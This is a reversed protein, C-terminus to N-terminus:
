TSIVALLMTGITCAVSKFHLNNFPFLPMCPAYTRNYMWYVFVSQSVSLQSRIDADCAPLHHAPLCAPLCVSLCASLCVPLCVSLCISLHVSLCAHLCIPVCASVCVSPSVPLCDRLCVPPCVVNLCLYISVCVPPCVVNLCLCSPVCVPPCVVNLCVSLCLWACLCAPLSTPLCASRYIFLYMPLCAPKWSYLCFLYVSLLSPAPPHTSDSSQRYSLHLDTWGRSRSPQRRSVVSSEASVRKRDKRCSAMTLLVPMPLSTWDKVNDMWCKKQRGRRRGGELTGQLIAKFLSISTVHQNVM